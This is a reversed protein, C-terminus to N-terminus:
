GSYYGPHIIIGTIYSGLIGGTILCTTQSIKLSITVDKNKKESVYLAVM